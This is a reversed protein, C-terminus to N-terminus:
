TKPKASQLIISIIPLSARHNPFHAKKKIPTPIINQIITLIHIRNKRGSSVRAIKNEKQKPRISFM